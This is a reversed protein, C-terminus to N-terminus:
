LGPSLCVPHDLPTATREVNFGADVNIFLGDVRIGSAVLQVM